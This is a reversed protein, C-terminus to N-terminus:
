EQKKQIKRQREDHVLSQEPDMILGGPHFIAPDDIYGEQDEDSGKDQQCCRYWFRQIRHIQEQADQVATKRKQDNLAVLGDGAMHRLFVIDRIIHEKDTKQQEVCVQQCCPKRREEKLAIQLIKLDVQGPLLTNHALTRARCFKERKMIQFVIKQNRYM